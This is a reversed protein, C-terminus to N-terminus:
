ILVFQKSSLVIFYFESEDTQQQKLNRLIKHFILYKYFRNLKLNKGQNMICLEDLRVMDCLKGLTCSSKNKKEIRNMIPINITEFGKFPEHNRPQFNAFSFLEYFHLGESSTANPLLIFQSVYSLINAILHILSVNSRCQWM